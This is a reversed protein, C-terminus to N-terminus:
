KAGGEDIMGVAVAVTATTRCHMKPIGYLHNECEAKQGCSKCMERLVREAIISIFKARAVDADFSKCAALAAKQEATMKPKADAKLGKVKEGKLGEVKM